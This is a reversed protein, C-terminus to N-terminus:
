CCSRANPIIPSPLSYLEGASPPTPSRWAWRAAPRRDQPRPRLWPCSPRHLRFSRCTWSRCWGAARSSTPGPGTPTTQTPSTGPRYPVGPSGDHATRPRPDKQRGAVHFRKVAAMTTRLRHATNPSTQTAPNTAPPATAQPSQSQSTTPEATHATSMVIGPTILYLPLGSAGHHAFRHVPWLLGSFKVIM